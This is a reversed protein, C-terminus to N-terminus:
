VEDDNIDFAALSGLPEVLKVLCYGFFIGLLWLPQESIIDLQILLFDALFFGSFMLPGTFFLAWLITTILKQNCNQCIIVKKYILTLRDRLPIITSCNPCERSFLARFITM